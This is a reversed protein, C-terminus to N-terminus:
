ETRKGEGLPRVSRLDDLTMPVFPGPVILTFTKPDLDVNVQVQSIRFTVQLPTSGAATASVRVESPFVGDRARYEVLLGDRTAAEVQWVGQRKRIWARTDRGLDMAARDAHTRGTVNPAPDTVCGSLVNLLDVGDWRLGTLAEVIDRTPARLVREDRPLLLVTHEARGAMQVFSRGPGPVELYLDNERTFASHLTASFRQRSSGVWGDVRIEAVFIRADSCRASVARWVGAADAFPASPETPPRYLRTACASTGAVCWAVV